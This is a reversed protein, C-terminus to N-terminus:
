SRIRGVVIHKKIKAPIKNLFPAKGGMMKFGLVISALSFGIFLWDQILHDIYYFM